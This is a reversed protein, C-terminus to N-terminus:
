GVQPRMEGVTSVSEEPVREKFRRELKVVHSAEKCQQVTACRAEWLMALLDGPVGDEAAAEERWVEALRAEEKADTAALVVTAAEVEVEQQTVLLEGPVVDAARQRAAEERGVEALRAEEKANAGRPWCRRRNKVQALRRLEAERKRRSAM